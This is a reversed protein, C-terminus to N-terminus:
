AWSAGCTLSARCTPLPFYIDNTKDYEVGGDGKGADPKEPATAEATEAVQESAESESDAERLMREFEDYNLQGDDEVDGVRIYEGAEEYTLEERLLQLEVANILGDGNRDFVEFADLYAGDRRTGAASVGLLCAALAIAFHVDRAM